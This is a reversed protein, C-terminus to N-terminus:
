NVEKIKEFSNNLNDLIKFFEMQKVKDVQKGGKLMFILEELKSIIEETTDTLNHNEDGVPHDISQTYRDIDMAARKSGTEVLRKLQEDSIIIKSM